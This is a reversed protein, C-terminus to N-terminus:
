KIFTLDEKKKWMVTKNKGKGGEEEQKSCERSLMSKAMQAIGQMCRRMMSVIRITEEHTNLPYNHFLSGGKCCRESWGIAKERQGVDNSSQKKAIETSQFGSWSAHCHKGTCIKSAAVTSVYQIRLEASPVDICSSAPLSVSPLGDGHLLIRWGILQREKRVDIKRNEKERVCLVM